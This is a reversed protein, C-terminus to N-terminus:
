KNNTWEKFEEITAFVKHNPAVNHWQKKIQGLNKFNEIYKPTYPKSNRIRKPNDISPIANILTKTYPHIPNNYVEDSSGEEILEGKYM